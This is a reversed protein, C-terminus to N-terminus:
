HVCTVFFSYGSGGNGTTGDILNIFNFGYYISLTSPSSWTASVTWGQGNMAGSGYLGLLESYTPLRWGTLSNIFANACYSNANTWTDSFTAPMWSLGGQVVYGAPLVTFSVISTKSAVINNADKVSFVINTTGYTAIPIGTVAGTSTDLSLGSPLTGTTISYTYPSTGGSATLPTFSTMAKTVNLNQATTTAAASITTTASVGSAGGGGCAAVAISFLVILFYKISKM